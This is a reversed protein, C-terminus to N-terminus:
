GPVGRLQDSSVLWMSLGVRLVGWRQVTTGCCVGCLARRIKVVVMPEWFSKKMRGVVKSPESDLRNGQM